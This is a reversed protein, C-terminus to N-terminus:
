SAMVGKRPVRADAPARAEATAGEAAAGGAPAGAAVSRALWAADRWFPVHSFAARGALGGARLTLRVSAPRAAPQGAMPAAEEVAQARMPLGTGPAGCRNCKCASESCERDVPTSRVGTGPPWPDERAQKTGSRRRAPWGGEWLCPVVREADPQFAPVLRMAPCVAACHERHAAPLGRQQRLLCFIDLALVVCSRARVAAHHEQYATLLGRTRPSARELVLADILAGGRTAGAAGAAQLARLAEGALAAAEAPEPRARAARCPM